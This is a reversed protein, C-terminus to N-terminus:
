SIHKEMLRTFHLEPFLEFLSNSLSILCKAFVQMLLYYHAIADPNVFLFHDFVDDLTDGVRHQSIMCSDLTEPHLSCQQFCELPYRQAPSTWLSRRLVCPLPSDLLTALPFIGLRIFAHASAMIAPRLVMARRITRGFFFTRFTDVLSNPCM